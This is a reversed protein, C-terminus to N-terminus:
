KEPAGLHPILCFKVIGFAAERKKDLMRRDPDHELAHIRLQDKPKRIGFSSCFVVELHHVATEKIVELERRDFLVTGIDRERWIDSRMRDNVLV